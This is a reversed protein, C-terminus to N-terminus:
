KFTLVLSLGATGPNLIPKIKLSLDDNVNFSSLHADVAADAVNLGWFLIFFLVSYDINKRFVSRNLQLSTIDNYTIFPQLEPAVNAFNASDRTVLTKYAFQIKKYQHLNYVFIAGTAGLAGYVLPLKWYKHNYIQGLGPLLASRIAATRPSRERYKKSTVTDKLLHPTIIDGKKIM